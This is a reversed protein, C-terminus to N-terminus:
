VLHCSFQELFCLTLHQHQLGLHSAVRNSYTGDDIVHVVGNSALIDADLVLSETNITITSGDNAVLAGLDNSSIIIGDTLKRSFLRETYVHYELIREIVGQPVDEIPLGIAAEM